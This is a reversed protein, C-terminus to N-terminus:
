YIDGIKQVPVKITLKGDQGKVTKIGDLIRFNPKFKSTDVISGSGSSDKKEKTKLYLIPNTEYKKQRYPM